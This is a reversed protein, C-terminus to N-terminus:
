KFIHHFISLNIPLLVDKARNLNLLIPRLRVAVGCQLPHQISGEVLSSKHTLPISRRRTFSEVSMERLAYAGILLTSIVKVSTQLRRVLRSLVWSPLRVCAIRVVIVVIYAEPSDAHGRRGQFQCCSSM